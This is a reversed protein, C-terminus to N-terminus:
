KKLTEDIKLKDNAQALVSTHTPKYGDKQLTIDYNGPEVQIELPTTKSLQTGNIVVQAGRPDTRIEMRAMGQGKGGGFVKKLGGIVEINDTRGALKLTPSYSVSQGAILKIDTSTDLFGEKHVTVTHVAPDLTFEAPSFKGSDRGDILIQAGTPTGAVTLYGRTPTLRVDLATRNGSAVEVTRTETAYGAKSLTVKYMGPDLSALTIPTKGSAEPHGIIEVGAGEPSSSIALEGEAPLVPTTNTAARTPKERVPKQPLARVEIIPESQPESVSSQPKTTVPRKTPNTVGPTAAPTESRHRLSIALASVVFLVAAIVAAIKWQNRSKATMKAPPPASRVTTTPRIRTTTQNAASPAPAAPKAIAVPPMIAVTPPFEPASAPAPKAAQAAPKAESAAPKAAPPPQVAPAAPQAAQASPKAPIAQTIPAAAGQGSVKGNPASSAAAAAAAKAPGGNMADELAGMLEKASAFRAAPNKSLARMLVRSVAEPVRPHAQSATPPDLDTINRDVEGLHKGAFPNRTTFLEYLIVAATFINSSRDLPKNRIQEPSLYHENELRKAPTPSYLHKERLVGFDLIKLTGDAAVKINAPTLSHHLVNKEHARTLAACLQRAMATIQALGPNTQRVFEKLGLGEVFEATVFVTFGKYGGTYLRAINLHDLANAARAAALMRKLMEDVDDLWDPVQIQRLAVLREIKPNRAKYVVGISGASLQQILELRDMRPNLDAVVPTATTATSAGSTEPM